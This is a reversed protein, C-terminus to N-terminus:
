KPFGQYGEEMQIGLSNIATGTMAYAGVTYVIEIMQEKSYYKALTKWTADSIFTERHLEDVARLVARQDENWGKADAGKAIRAIDADTLGVDKAIPAHHAWEYETKVLWGSRMIVLERTKPPVLSERQIYTGFTSRPGYFKPHNILTAYLNPLKGDRIRPKVLELKEGSLDSLPVPNVRPTKLRDSTPRSALTPMPVDTPIHDALIPDLQVGLSNLAMSVLQYQTATYMADITQELSYKARLAAWTKDSIKAEYRIEDVMTILTRDFDTWGKASAGEAVRHVDAATMKVDAQAIRAHQSWEYPAQCLWGMRLIVIERDHPPLTSGNLLYQGLPSWKAYLTPHHALTKYINYDPRSALMKEQEQTRGEKGIPALRPVSLRPAFKETVAEGMATAALLVVGAGMVLTKISV